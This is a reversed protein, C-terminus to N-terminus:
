LNATQRVKVLRATTPKFIEFDHALDRHPNDTWRYCMREAFGKAKKLREDPKKGRTM